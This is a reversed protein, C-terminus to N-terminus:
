HPATDLKELRDLMETLGDREQEAETQQQQHGEQGQMIGADVGSDRMASERKGALPTPVLAPGDPKWGPAIMRLQEEEREKERRKREILYREAQERTKRLAELQAAPGFSGPATSGPASAPSRLVYDELHFDYVFYPELAPPLPHLDVPVAPIPPIRLSPSKILPVSSALEYLSTSRSTSASTSM